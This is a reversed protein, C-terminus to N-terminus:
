GPPSRMEIPGTIGPRQDVARWLYVMEGNLKVYM